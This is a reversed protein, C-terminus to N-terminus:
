RTNITDHQSYILPTNMHTLIPPSQQSKSHSMFRESIQCKTAYDRYKKLFILKFSSTKQSYKEVLLSKIKRKKM